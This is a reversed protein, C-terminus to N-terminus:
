WQNNYIIRKKRWENNNRRMRLYTELIICAAVSDIKEKRKKRSTDLSILYNEAEVTTLREDVLVIEKHYRNELEEKFKLSRDSAFGLSNNMNKPLGLVLIDIKKNEIINDLEKFLLNYNEGDWRLVQLPTVLGSENLSTSLGLTKTGLDLGLYRM